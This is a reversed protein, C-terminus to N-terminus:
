LAADRFIKCLKEQNNEANGNYYYRQINEIKSGALMAVYSIPLGGNLAVTIATHRFVYAYLRFDLGLEDGVSKLWQNLRERFLKYQYDRTKVERKSKCSLIPFIYKDNSYKNKYKAIIDAIMPSIPIEVLKCTKKRRIVLTNRKTINKYELKIVDCPAFFSYLMFKSFDYYLEVSRRNKYSPTIQSVDMTLFRRLQETNFIDPPKIGENYKDPNYDKFNFDGIQRISFNVDQDKDAKGLLARFSKTTGRYNKYKAFIKALELCKEFDISQFTMSSFDIIVKRSKKLLKLYFEFNSGPKIKEREIVIKLFEEVSNRYPKHIALKSVVNAAKPNSNGTKYFSAIQRASLEPYSTILMKYVKKFRELQTNNEIYSPSRYSFKEKGADWYKIDPNGVLLSHVKRYYREKGESIRLVLAGSRIIFKLRVM